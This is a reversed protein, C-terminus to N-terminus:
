VNVALVRARANWLLMLRLDEVAEDLEVIEYLACAKSQGDAFGDGVTEMSLYSNLRLTIAATRSEPYLHWTLYNFTLTSFYQIILPFMYLYLIYLNSFYKGISKVKCKKNKM